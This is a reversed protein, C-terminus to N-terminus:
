LQANLDIQLIDNSLPPGAIENSSMWRVGVRVANSLGFSGGVTIGQVNTRGGGFLSDTFGDVVADSEVYRYGLVAQWDGFAQLVPNGVIWNLYFATDGGEFQGNSGRNGIVKAPDGVDFALNRIVEGVLSVRVPEFHDYDLRGTLALNQFASALGYYQYQHRNGFDNAATSNDINRLAIYSNGRQAFSPRTSDTSGADEPTLPIFPESVEGEMGTFHYYALSVKANLDDTPKWEVGMQAATLWKDTSSFKAPQNSAFSFDTNFVPFFGGNVFVTADNGLHFRGRAALGDLGIDDDWLIETCLFPNDFRGALFTWDGASGADLTHSIFARDLWIAYKSFNGGSAGLTQNPSTPSASEGTALRLGAHYGSGLLIDAGARARLRLRSRDQDVNHQPSFQTGSTDFPLGTNIANFNPFAGTNDNGEPFLVQEGRLRIDGFPKWRKTWEPPQTNGWDEERAKVELERQIEDRLQERVVDPVYTIRLEEEPSPEAPLPAATPAPAPAPAATAASAAAAASQQEAERIMATAEEQSLIGKEVLRKVLHIAIADASAPHAAAAPAPPPPLLEAPPLDVPLPVGGSSENTPLASTEAHLPGVALLILLPTPLHPFRPKM